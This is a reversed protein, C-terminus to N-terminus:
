APFIFGMKGAHLSANKEQRAIKGREPPSDIKKEDGLHGM